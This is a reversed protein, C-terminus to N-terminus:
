TKEENFLHQNQKVFFEIKKNILDENLGVEILLCIEIILKVKETLRFLAWGKKAKGKNEDDYHTLYNRTDVIAAIFENKDKTLLSILKENKNFIDLLRKRLSYENLYKFRAKLSVSFPTEIKKPISKIFFLYLGGLFKSRELYNGGIVKRHYYELAYIFNLFRQELYISKNFINGFYLTFLPELTEAKNLWNSFYKCFDNKIQNFFFNFNLVNGIGLQQPYDSLQYFINIPIRYTDNGFKIINQESFGNVALPYVPNATALSLFDRFKNLYIFFKDLPLENKSKFVINAQENTKIEGGEEKSINQQCTLKFLISIEDNIKYEIQDPISYSINFLSEGLKTKFGSVNLWAYLNTYSCGVQYFKIADANKYHVGCFVVEAILTIVPFISGSSFSKEQCKYLTINEGDLSKGLLFECKINLIQDNFSNFLEIVAGNEQSFTLIGFIKENEREPLWWYGKKEWNELM